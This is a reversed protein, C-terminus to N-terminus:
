QEGETASLLKVLREMAEKPEAIPCIPEGWSFWFWWVVGDTDPGAQVTESLRSVLPNAVMLCPPMGAEAPLYRTMLRTGTLEKQLAHLHDSAQNTVLEDSGVDGSLDRRKLMIAGENSHGITGTKRVPFRLQYRCTGAAGAFSLAEWKM